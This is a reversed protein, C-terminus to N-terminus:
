ILLNGLEIEKQRIETRQKLISAHGQQFLSLLKQKKEKIYNIEKEDMRGNKELWEMFINWQLSELAELTLKQARIARNYKMRSIIKTAVNSGCTM